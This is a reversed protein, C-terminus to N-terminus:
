RPRTPFSKPKGEVAVRSDNQDMEMLTRAARMNEINSTFATSKVNTRRLFLCWFDLSSFGVLLFTLGNKKM